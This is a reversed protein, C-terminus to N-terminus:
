KTSGDYSVMASYIGPVSDPIAIASVSKEYFKAAEGVQGIVAYAFGDAKMAQLCCLLLAEGIHQHRESELVGTPGFFNKCTADYCAFGIIKKEKVAVFCTIPQQSCAAVCEGVWKSKFTRVFDILNQIDPALLRVIRVGKRELERFIERKEPLDYLKVLLDNM